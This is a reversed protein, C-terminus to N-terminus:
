EEEMPGYFPGGECNCGDYYDSCNWPSLHNDPHEAAWNHYGCDSKLTFKFNPYKGTCWNPNDVSCICGGAARYSDYLKPRKM